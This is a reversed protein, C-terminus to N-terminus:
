PLPQAKEPSRIRGGGLMRDGQFIVGSQGPTVAPQAEELHLIVADSRFELRAPAPLARHRLQVEVSEGFSEPPALWNLDGLEVVESYLDERTGVVVERSGASIEVVFIPEPFGGPLGKRQGVTFNSFGTHTGVVEGSRTVISGPQFAPHTLELRGKLLDRYDGTPVFCIEQSEPKDATVLGMERAMERVQPKTLKGLPFVLHPLTERPLGWLFYAQDKASDTGRLLAPGGSAEPDVRVYHGTAIGEAGMEQGRNLLDRFKTFSNCRVCPNPTRGAAYEEVFDDIVDRTFEEEVDYVTHPIGLAHAVRKADAVGELGCCSKAHAGEGSYCFTRLTAGVVEYGERVLLAAAVSSDVGGSMAVLIRKM